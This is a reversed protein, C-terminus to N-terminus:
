QSVKRYNNRWLAETITGALRYVRSESASPMVHHVLEHVLTNLLKKPSQRPDVEIKNDGVYYLGWAKERGLKREVIKLKRKAMIILTGLM